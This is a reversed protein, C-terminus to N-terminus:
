DNRKCRWVEREVEKLDYIFDSLQDYMGALKDGQPTNKVKEQGEGIDDLALKLLYMATNISAYSSIRTTTKLTEIPKAIPQNQAEWELENAIEIARDLAVDTMSNGEEDKGQYLSEEMLEATAPVALRSDEWDQVAWEPAVLPNEMHPNCQRLYKRATPTSCGYREM